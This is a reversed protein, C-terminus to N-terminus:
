EVVRYGGSDSEEITVSHFRLLLQRKVWQRNHYDRLSLIAISVLCDLLGM